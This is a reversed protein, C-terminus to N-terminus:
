EQIRTGYGFGAIIRLAFFGHTLGTDRMVAGVAAGNLGEARVRRSADAIIKQHVERKHLNATVGTGNLEAALHRTFQNESSQHSGKRSDRLCNREIVVNSSSRPRIVKTIARLM